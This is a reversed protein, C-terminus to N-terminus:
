EPQKMKQQISKRKADKAGFWQLSRAIQKALTSNAYRSSIEALEQRLKEREEPKVTKFEGEQIFYGIDGRDRIKKWVEADEGLPEEVTIQVPESEIRTPTTQDGVLVYNVAKLQYVGPEPFVYDTLIRDEAAAKAVDKNLGELNPKWNWFLRTMTELKAGSKLVSRCDSDSTGWGPHRYKLFPEGNKAVWVGLVGSRTGFCDNIILEKGGNNVLAFALNVVEGQKYSTRASRIQLELNQSSGAIHRTLILGAFVSFLLGGSLLVILKKHKM